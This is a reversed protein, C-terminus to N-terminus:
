RALEGLFQGVLYLSGCVSVTETPPTEAMADALASALDPYARCAALEPCHQAALSALRQPDSSREEPVPVFYARDGPRLLAQLLRDCDKTALIGTVFAVATELSDLYHRLARAATPNHAGDLLLPRGRWLVWQLRGSWRARAMGTEIAALPVSYGQQQLCQVLAVAIASDTLQVQGPLPLPYTVGRAFAWRKGERDPPLESAPKVWWLPCGLASAREAIAAQAPQPMPGIAVPRGPKLIGAKETAIEALTDGLQQSHERSITTIASALPQEAANTADLRGGLGVEMVAVDVRQRAFYLWAAATLLEFQTPPEADAPIADRVRQLVLALGWHPIPQENLCIRESWDVLHPSTYRGVRYGAAALVSSLYACVSGKGNTGTVHVFPVARQPDDLRALLREIRDLGLSVGFPQFSQLLADVRAVAMQRPSPLLQM